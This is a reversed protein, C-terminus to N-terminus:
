RFRPHSNDIKHNLDYSILKPQYLSYTYPKEPSMIGTEPAPNAQHM